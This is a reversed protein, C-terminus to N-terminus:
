VIQHSTIHNYFKKKEKKKKCKEDYEQITYSLIFCKYVCKAVMMDNTQANYEYRIYM